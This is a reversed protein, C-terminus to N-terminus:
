PIQKEARYRAETRVGAGYDTQRETTCVGCNTLAISNTYIVESNLFELIITSLNPNKQKPQTKRQKNNTQKLIM